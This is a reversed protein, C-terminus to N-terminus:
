DERKAIFIQLGISSILLYVHVSSRPITVKILTSCPDSVQHGRVSPRGCSGLLDGRAQESFLMLMILTHV